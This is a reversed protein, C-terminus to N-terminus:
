NGGLKMTGSGPVMVDQIRGHLADGLLLCAKFDTLMYGLTEVSIEGLISAPFFSKFFIPLFCIM